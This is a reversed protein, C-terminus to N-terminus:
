PASTSMVSGSAKRRSISARLTVKGGEFDDPYVFSTTGDAGERLKVELTGSGSLAVSSLPTHPSATWHLHVLGPKETRLWIRASRADVLGAGTTPSGDM